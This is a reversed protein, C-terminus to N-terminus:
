VDEKRYLRSAKRVVVGSALANDLVTSDGFEGRLYSRVGAENAGPNRALTELLAQRARLAMAIEAHLQSSSKREGQPMVELTAYKNNMRMEVAKKIAGRDLHHERQHYARGEPNVARPVIEEGDADVELGSILRSSEGTVRLIFRTGDVLTIKLYRIM